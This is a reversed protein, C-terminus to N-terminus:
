SLELFDRKQWIVGDREFAEIEQNAMELKAIESM